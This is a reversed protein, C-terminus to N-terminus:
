RSDRARSSLRWGNSEHTITVDLLAAIRPFLTAQDGGLRIVGSFPRAAIDPAIRIPMGLNRSLDAAVRGLTANKYILENQRWAAVETPSIAGLTMSAGDPSSRLVHGADIRVAEGHPNYVVAGSAVATEIMGGDRVINFVTGVDQFRDAGVHVTFPNQEDHVVTFAAEGRDLSAYRNDGKRLTLRSNGNLEIRTGDDLQVSRHEGLGTEVAYTAPAPSLLPYGAAVVVVAAAATAWGAFRGIKRRDIQPNDNSPQPLAAADILGAYDGDALAVAEYLGNHAPDAELWAMFGDWDATAPDRLGIFWAVAEERKYDDIQSMTPEKSTLVGRLRAIWM